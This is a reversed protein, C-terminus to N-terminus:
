PHRFCRICRSVRDHALLLKALRGMVRSARALRERSRGTAQSCAEDARLSGSAAALIMAMASRESLTLQRCFKLWALWGSRRHTTLTMFRALQGDQASPWNSMPVVMTEKPLLWKLSGNSDWQLTVSDLQLGGHQVNTLCITVPAAQDEGCEVALTDFRLGDALSDLEACLRRAVVSWSRTVHWDDQQLAKSSMSVLDNVMTWDSTGLARLRLRSAPDSPMVTMFETGNEAGSRHWGSLPPTTNWDGDRFIALGSHGFHHLLRWRLTPLVRGGLVYARACFELHRHPPVDKVALLHIRTRDHAEQSRSGASLRRGSARSNLLAYHKRELRAQVDHLTLTLSEIQLRAAALAQQFDAVTVPEEASTDAAM